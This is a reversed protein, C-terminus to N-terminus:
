SKARRSGRAAKRPPQVDPEADPIVNPEPAAPENAAADTAGRKQRVVLRNESYRMEIELGVRKARRGLALRRGRVASEDVLTLEITKGAAVAEIVDDITDPGKLLKPSPYTEFRAPDVDTWEIMTM